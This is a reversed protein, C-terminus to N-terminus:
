ESSNDVDISRIMQLSERAAEGVRDDPDNLAKKLASETRDTVSRIRGLAEAALRRIGPRSDKLLNILTPVAWGANSGMKGVSVITGGEGQRMTNLLEPVYAKNEPNIKYIAFAASLRVSLERDKLAHILAPIASDAVPGMEGLAFCALRRVERDKDTVAESLPSVVSQPNERGLEGLAKAAARRVEVDEDKLQLILQPTRDPSCGIASICIVLGILRTM